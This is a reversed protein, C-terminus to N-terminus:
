TFSTPGSFVIAPQSELKPDNTFEKSNLYPSQTLGRRTERSSSWAPRVKGSIRGPTSRSNVDTVLIQLLRLPTVSRNGRAIV